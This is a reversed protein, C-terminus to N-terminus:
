SIKAEVWSRTAPSDIDEMWRYPDPVKVGHLGRSVDGPTANSLDPATGTTAWAVTAFLSTLVIWRLRM